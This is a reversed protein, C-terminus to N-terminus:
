GAGLRSIFSGLDDTWPSVSLVKLRSRGGSELTVVSEPFLESVLRLIAENARGDAAREKVRVIVANRFPDVGDLKEVASGPHAWIRLHAVSADTWAFVRQTRESSYSGKM